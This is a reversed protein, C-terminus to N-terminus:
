LKIGELLSPGIDLMLQRVAKAGSDALGVINQPRFMGSESPRQGVDVDCILGAAPFDGPSSPTSVVDQKRLRMMFEKNDRSFPIELTLRLDERPSPTLLPALPGGIVKAALKYSAELARSSQVYYIARLGFRDFSTAQIDKVLDRMIPPATVAVRELSAIPTYHLWVREPGFRLEYPM